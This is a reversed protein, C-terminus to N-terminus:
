AGAHLPEHRLEGGIRVGLLPFGHIQFVRKEVFDHIGSVRFIMM